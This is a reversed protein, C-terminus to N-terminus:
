QLKSLANKLQAGLQLVEPRPDSESVLTSGSSVSEVFDDPVAQKSKKLVKEMQAPSLLESSMCMSGLLDGFHRKAKLEDKWKRRAQKAVMKYGPVKGGTELVTAALNRLDDIYKELADARALCAGLEDPTLLKVTRQTEREIEGNMNPCIPKASCWRCHDGTALPADPKQAAKVAQVLQLEFQAIREPTTVWRKIAPPQVIICEIETVGEFAWQAATTRMAAAAYFMLQQNEVVDVAV